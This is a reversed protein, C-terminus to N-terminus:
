GKDGQPKDPEEAKGPEEPKAQEEPKKEMEEEFAVLVPRMKDWEGGHHHKLEDETIKGNVWTTSLPYASISLHVHYMHWTLIATAALIAEYGHIVGALEVVWPAWKSPAVPFWLILGTTIMATNGWVVAFYEFKEMFSYRGYKPPEKEFGVYYRTLHLFDFLDKATPIMASTRQGKAFKVALYVVHYVSCTILVVAASRHINGMATTGGWFHAVRLASPTDHFWLPIGTATLVLFSAMLM